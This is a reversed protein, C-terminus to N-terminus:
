GSGGADPGLRRELNLRASPRFGTYELFQLLPWNNWRVLTEMRRVGLKRVRALLFAMVASAIGEHQRAEKVAFVDIVGRPEDIGFEGRYLSGVMFGAVEGSHEAVVFLNRAPDRAVAALKDVFYRSRPPLGSEEGIAVVATVDDAAAARIRTESARAAFPYKVTDWELDVARSPQFGNAKFFGLLDLRHWDVLTDIAEVRLATLNKLYQELLATAVGLGRFAPNIGLADLVARTAPIGFEGFFLQGFLFGVPLGEIDAILSTNIGPEAVCAAVKAGYFEARERGTHKRDLAVVAPLDARTMLRVVAARDPAGDLAGDPRGNWPREAPTRM